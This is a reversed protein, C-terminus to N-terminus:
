QLASDPSTSFGSPMKSSLPLRTYTLTKPTRSRFASSKYRGLHRAAFTSELYHRNKPSTRRFLQAPVNGIDGIKQLDVLGFTATAQRNEDGTIQM